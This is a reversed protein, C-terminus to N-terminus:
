VQLAEVVLPCCHVTVPKTSTGPHVSNALAKSCLGMETATSAETQDEYLDPTNLLQPNFTLWPTKNIPDLSCYQLILFEHPAVQPSDPNMLNALPFVQAMQWYGDYGVM